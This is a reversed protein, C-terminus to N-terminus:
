QHWERVMKIVRLEDEETIFPLEMLLPIHKLREDLVFQKLAETGIVGEGVIEHRDIRSGRTDKTDNLHILAIASLGITEDLLAVFENRGQADLLNYGYSHAHATDVCFLVREPRDIMTLMKKFDDFDGGISMGGHATNELVLSITSEHVFFANISRALAEIGKQKDDAGKASGPHVIIHTFGLKRALQSERYLSRQNVRSIGALNIWYSGHVYLPGQYNKREILFQRVDEVTPNILKGTKHYVLFCQFFPVEYRRAKEIMAALTGEFRIHVGIGRM